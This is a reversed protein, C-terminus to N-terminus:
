IGDPIIGEPLFIQDRVEDLKNQNWNYRKLSNINLMGRETNKFVDWLIFTSIAIQKYILYPGEYVSLFKSTLERKNHQDTRVEILVWNGVQIQDLKHENDYRLARKRGKERCRQKALMLKQEYPINDHNDLVNIYRRWINTPEQNFRLEIPTIQTTEHTIENICTEIVNIWDEWENHDQLNENILTRFFRGIERNVREVVNGQPHRISSM